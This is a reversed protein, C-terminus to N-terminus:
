DHEKSKDPSNQMVESLKDQIFKKERKAVDLEQQLNAIKAGDKQTQPILSQRGSGTANLQRPVNSHSRKNSMESGKQRAKHSQHTIQTRSFEEPVQQAETARGQPHSRIPGGGPRIM